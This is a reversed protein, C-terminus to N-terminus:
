NREKQGRRSSFVPGHNLSGSSKVMGLPRMSIMKGDGFCIHLGEEMVVMINGNIDGLLIYRSGLVWEKIGIMSIM